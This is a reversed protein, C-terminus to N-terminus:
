SMQTRSSLPHSSPFVFAVQPLHFLCRQSFKNNIKRSPLIIPDDRLSVCRNSISNLHCVRHDRLILIWMPIHSCRKSYPISDVSTMSAVRIGCFLVFVFSKAQPILRFLCIISIEDSTKTTPGVRARDYLVMMYLATCMVYSADGLRCLWPSKLVSRSWQLVM